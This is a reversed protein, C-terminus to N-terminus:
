AVNANITIAHLKQAQERQQRLARVFQGFGQLLQPREPVTVSNRYVDRRLGRACANICGCIQLADSPKKQLSARRLSSCLAQM